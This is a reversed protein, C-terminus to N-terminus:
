YFLCKYIVIVSLLTCDLSEFGRPSALKNTIYFWPNCSKQSCGKKNDIATFAMKPRKKDANSITQGTNLKSRDKGLYEKVQQAYIRFFM